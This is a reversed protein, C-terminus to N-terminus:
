GWCRTPPAPTACAWGAGAEKIFAPVDTLYLEGQANDNKLKGLSSLLEPVHFVYTGTNVERIQKQEPTCDKDEVIARFSGDAERLIRGYNGGEPLVASLLTCANGERLHADALAQFTEKKMLPADGCCIIVHGQFGELLPAACQVAHGTGHQEAQVAHPYQPYAELVAEKKWGVVLIVDEPPLFDLASLVYHLLPKGDALRMVKPLDIGETQLRDRERRGAGPSKRYPGHDNEKTNSQSGTGCSPCCATSTGRSGGCPWCPAGASPCRPPSSWFSTASGWPFDASITHDTLEFKLNRLTVGEATGSLCFASWFGTLGAPFTMTEDRLVTAVTGEGALVGRAGQTTLWSLAQLNALTHELRGGM